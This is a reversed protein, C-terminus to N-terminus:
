KKIYIKVGQKNWHNYKGDENTQTKQKVDKYIKLFINVQKCKEAKEGM